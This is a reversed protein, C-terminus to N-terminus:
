HIKRAKRKLGRRERPWSLKGRYSLPNSCSPELTLTTPELGVRPVPSPYSQKRSKVLGVM